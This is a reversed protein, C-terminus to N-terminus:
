VPVAQALVAQRFSAPLGNPTLVDVPVGLLKELEVQIAAVDMLSTEPTPDILLDLDSGDTDKGAVVSGFVRANCARHAEVVRRVASRHAHLATSPKM